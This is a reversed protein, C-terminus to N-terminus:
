NGARYLSFRIRFWCSFMVAPFLYGNNGQIHNGLWMVCCFTHAFHLKWNWIGFTFTKNQKDSDLLLLHLIDNYDWTHECSRWLAPYKSEMDRVTSGKYYIEWPFIDLKVHPEFARSPRCLYLHPFLCLYLKEMNVSCALGLQLLAEWPANWLEQMVPRHTEVSDQNKTNCIWANWCQPHASFPVVVKSSPIYIYDRGFNYRLTQGTRCIYVRLCVLWCM